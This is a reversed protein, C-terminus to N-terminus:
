SKLISACSEHAQPLMLHSPEPPSPLPPLQRICAPRFSCFCSHINHYQAHSHSLSPDKNHTSNGGKLSSTIAEGGSKRAVTAIFRNYTKHIQRAHILLTGADQTTQQQSSRRKAVLGSRALPSANFVSPFLVDLGSGCALTM